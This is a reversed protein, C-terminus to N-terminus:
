LPLTAAPAETLEAGPKLPTQVVLLGTGVLKVMLPFAQLPVVVVVGVAPVVGVAVEVLPVVGVAVGVLPVVGVAVGVLPVVGVAVLVGERLPCTAFGYAPAVPKM